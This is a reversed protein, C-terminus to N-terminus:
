TSVPRLSSFLARKSVINASRFLHSCATPMSSVQSGRGSLRAQLIPSEVVVESQVVPAGPLHGHHPAYLDHLGHVGGHVLLQSRSGLKETVLMLGSDIGALRLSMFGFHTWGVSGVNRERLNLSPATQCSGAGGSGAGTM